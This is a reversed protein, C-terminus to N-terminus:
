GLLPMHLLNVILSDADDLTEGDRLWAFSKAWAKVKLGDLTRAFGKEIEEVIPAGLRFFEPNIPADLNAYDVRPWIAHLQNGLAILEADGAQSPADDMAPIGCAFAALAPMRGFLARRSLNTSQDQRRAVHKQLSRTM